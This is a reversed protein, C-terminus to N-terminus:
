RGRRLLSGLGGFSGAADRASHLGRELERFTFPGLRGLSIQNDIYRAFGEVQDRYSGARKAEESALYDNVMAKARDVGFREEVMALNERVRREAIALPGKEERERLEGQRGRQWLSGRGEVDPAHFPAESRLDREKAEAEANVNRATALERQETARQVDVQSKILTAQLASSVIGSTDPTSAMAGAPVAAGRGGTASLIPNLGAARLDVVERQHATNSMMEQWSRSDEAAERASWSEYAKGALSAVGAIIAPWM